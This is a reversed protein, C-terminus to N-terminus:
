ICGQYAEAFTDFNAKLDDVRRFPKHLMLKHRCYQESKPGSPDSSCFPRVVVIIDKRRHKPNSGLQKPTVYRQAYELLTLDHFLVTNPRAVYHDLTSSVTAPQDQDLRDEVARSGDLSLITFDRSAKVLPLQLLLHCTKQASYDREGVSKILLKQVAKTASNDATLSRVITSYIEALPKSRPESKSAYKTIYDVVKRLSVCYQMDVNARWASLQLQNHSNM